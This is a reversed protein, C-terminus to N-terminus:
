TKTATFSKAPCGSQKAKSFSATGTVKTSSVFKGSFKIKATGGLTGNVIHKASSNYSFSGSSSVTASGSALIAGARNANVYCQITFSVVQYKGKQKAVSFAVYRRGKASLYYGTKPKPAAAFAVPVAAMALLAGCVLVVARRRNSLDASLSIM